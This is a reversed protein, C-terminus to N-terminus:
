LRAEGEEAAKNVHKSERTHWCVCLCVCFLVCVNIRQSSSASSELGNAIIKPPLQPSSSLQVLLSQCLEDRDAFKAQVSWDAGEPKGALQEKTWKCASTRESTGHVVTSLTDQRTVHGM